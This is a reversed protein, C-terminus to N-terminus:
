NGTLLEKFNNFINLKLEKPEKGLIAALRDICANLSQLRTTKNDLTFPADSETLLRDLPINKLLEQGKQTSIMKHNVSFYFGEKVGDKLTEISGTFWHLIVKCSTGRLNERLIQIAEKEAKRTHVTIIKNGAKACSQIIEKFFITQKDFSSKFRESRDLGVEGVYKTQKLLNKFLALENGFQSVLEPHMGIAIRINKANRFLMQNHEFFSPANTVSITKVPLLDEENYKQQIDSILDLHCHTDILCSTM